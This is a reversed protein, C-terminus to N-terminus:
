HLTLLIKRLVSSCNQSLCSVVSNSMKAYSDDENEGDITERAGLVISISLTLHNPCWFDNVPPPIPPKEFKAVILKFIVFDRFTDDINSWTTAPQNETSSM